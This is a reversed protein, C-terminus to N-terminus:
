RKIYFGKGIVAVLLGEDVLAHLARESTKHSVEFEQALSKASPIRGTYEGSSISKRLAEALQDWLPIPSDQDLTM